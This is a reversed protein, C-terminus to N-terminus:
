VIDFARPKDLPDNSLQHVRIRTASLFEARDIVSTGPPLGPGRNSTHRVMGNDGKSIVYWMTAISPPVNCSGTWTGTFGFRAHVEWPSEAMAGSSMLLGLAVAAAANLRQM